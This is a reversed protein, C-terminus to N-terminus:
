DALLVARLGHEMVREAHEPSLRQNVRLRVWADISSVADAAELKWTPADHLEIEFTSSTEARLVAHGLKLRGAISPQEHARLLSARYMPLGAEALRCRQAVFAPLREDLPGETPIRQLSAGLQEWHRESVAVAISELDEFHHYLSRRSVGARHAIDDATPSPNGEDILEIVADLIAERNRQGRLVRRDIAEDAAEM